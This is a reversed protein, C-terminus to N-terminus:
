YRTYTLVAQRSFIERERVLGAVSETWRRVIDQEDPREIDDLVVSAAASLKDELVHLAPLRAVPGTAGPPGDVVLLDIDSLDAFADLDYWKFEEGAIVLPRLPAHRVEAVHGLGHTSLLLRTREAYEADHEFSILRGGTKELVYAMWVTSTGSGLELVTKPQARRVLFSIELLSTPDLAWGGSSPMPARPELGAFLQLLAEVERTQERQVKTVGRSAREVTVSLGRRTREVQALAVRHRESAARREKELATLVSREVAKVRAAITTERERLTRTFVERTRRAESRGVEEVAARIARQLEAVRRRTQIMGLVVLMGLPGVLALAVASRGAMTSGVIAGSLVTVVVLAGAQRRSVSRWRRVLRKM